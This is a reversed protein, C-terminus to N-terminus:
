ANQNKATLEASSRLKKLVNEAQSFDPKLTLARRLSAIAQDIKGSEMQAIAMNYYLIPDDQAVMLAKRYNEIAEDIKKQRRFALGMRNYYHVNSPDAELAFAYEAEALDARGSEMFFEAAQANRAAGDAEEGFAQYLATRAGDEDSNELLVKAIKMQRERNRPSITVSKQLMEFAEDTKGEKELIGALGEYAKAYGANVETAQHYCNKAKENCGLQEFLKASEVWFHPSEPSTKHASDMEAEAEEMAGMDIYAAARSLYVSSERLKERKELIGGMLIELRQQSIPKVIHADVDYDATEAFEDDEIQGRGSLMVFPIDKTISNGRVSKLLELGSLDPTNWECLIFDVPNEHLAEIAETGTAVNQVMQIGMQKLMTTIARRLESQDEVLLLHLNLDDM